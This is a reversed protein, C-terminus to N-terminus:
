SLSSSNRGHGTVHECVSSCQVCMCVCACVCVCKGIQLPNEHDTPFVLELAPIGWIAGTKQGEALGPEEWGGHRCDPSPSQGEDRAPVSGPEHVGLLGLCESATLDSRNPAM